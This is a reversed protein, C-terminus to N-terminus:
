THKTANVYVDVNQPATGANSTPVSIQLDFPSTSGVGINTLTNSGYSLTLAAWSPAADCNSHCEKHAYAGSGASGSLTWNSPTSDIGKFQFDEAVNGDNKVVPSKNIGNTTTDAPTASSVAGYDFSSNTPISLAVVEATVTATISTEVGLVDSGIILGAICVISISAMLLRM